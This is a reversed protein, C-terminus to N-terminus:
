LLVTEIKNGKKDTIGSSRIKVKLLKGMDDIDMELLQYYLKLLRESVEYRSLEKNDEYRINVGGNYSIYFNIYDLEFEFNCQIKEKGHIKTRSRKVSM